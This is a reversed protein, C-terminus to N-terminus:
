GNMPLGAAHRVAGPAIMRGLEAITDPAHLVFAWARDRAVGQEELATRLRAAREVLSALRDAARARHLDLAGHLARYGALRAESRRPAAEIRAVLRHKEEPIDPAGAFLAPNHRAAHAEWAARAADRATVRPLDFPLYADATATAMPALTLGLWQAFWRETIRDYSAGGTGHVFLDCAWARVIGTLLLARPALSAPSAQALADSFVRRRPVGPALTWLPLEVRRDDIALPAVGADPFSVAARNYAVAAARPDARLRDILLRFGETRHLRSAYVVPTTAGAPAILDKLAAIVQPVGGWGGAGPPETRHANLATVTREVGARVSELAPTAGVPWEARAVFAPCSAGPVGEPSETTIAVEGARLLGQPDRVPVRLSAFGAEDQDPVLWAPAVRGDAAAHDLAVFKALVGMHWWEAQHGSMIVPRDTPLALAARFRRAPESISAFREAALAPWDTAPPAISIREVAGTM